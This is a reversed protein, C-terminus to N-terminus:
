QYCVILFTFIDPITQEILLSSLGGNYIIFSCPVSSQVLISFRQLSVQIFLMKAPALTAGRITVVIFSASKVRINGPNLKSYKASNGNRYITLEKNHFHGMFSNYM